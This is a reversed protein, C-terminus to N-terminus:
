PGGGGARAGGTGAEHRRDWRRAGRNGGKGHEERPSLVHEPAADAPPLVRSSGRGHSGSHAGPHQQLVHPGLQGAAPGAGLGSHVGAAPCQPQLLHGESVERFGGCQSHFFVFELGWTQRM